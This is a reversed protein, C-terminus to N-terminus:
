GAPRLAPAGTRVEAVEALGEGIEQAVRNGIATPRALDGPGDQAREPAQKMLPLVPLRDAQGVHCTEDLASFPVTGERFVRCGLWGSKQFM